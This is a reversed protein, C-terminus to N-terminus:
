LEYYECFEDITPNIILMNDKTKIKRCASALAMSTRKNGCYQGNQTDNVSVVKRDMLDLKKALKRWNLNDQLRDFVATGSALDPRTNYLRLMLKGKGDISLANKIMGISGGLELVCEALKKIDDSDIAKAIKDEIAQGEEIFNHYSQTKWGENHLYDQDPLDAVQTALYYAFDVSEDRIAEQIQLNSMGLADSVRTNCSFVVMRRENVENTLQLTENTTLIFTLEQPYSRTDVDEFMRRVGNITANGSISNINQIVQKIDKSTIYHVEDLLVLDKNVQWANFKDTLMDISITAYRDKSLKNFVGNVVASKFSHPVGYFVFFLPSHERTRYKRAMFSLFMNLRAGCSNQLAALTVKPWRPHASDYKANLESTEWEERYKAPNYFVEQEKCQKYTNFENNDLKGFKKDPREIITVETLESLLKEKTQKKGSAMTLYDITNAVAKFSKIDLTVTDYVLYNVVGGRYYAYAELMHKNKSIVTFTENKWNPNYTYEPSAIDRDYINHLRKEELPTSFLNNIYWLLKKHLEKDISPDKMLVGSIALLYNYGNGDELRDPHLEWLDKNSMAMLGKFRSPTIISLLQKMSDEELLARAAIYGLKSSAYSTQEKAIMTKFKKEQYRSIALLQMALPMEILTDSSIIAQKTINMKTTAYVLTNGYLTDLQNLKCGNPNNIFDTLQNPTFKYIFHGGEKGVSKSINTCRYQEDLSNNLALAEDFMENDFDLVIINSLGCHIALPCSENELESFSKARNLSSPDSWKPLLPEQCEGSKTQILKKGNVRKMVGQQLRAYVVEM